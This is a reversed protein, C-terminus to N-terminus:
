FLYGKWSIVLMENEGEYKSGAFKGDTIEITKFRIPFLFDSLLSLFKRM